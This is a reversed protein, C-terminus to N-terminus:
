LRPNARGHGGSSESSAMVGERVVRRSGSTARHAAKAAVEHSFPLPTFAPSFTSAAASCTPSVASSAHSAVFSAASAAAFFASSAASAALSATM